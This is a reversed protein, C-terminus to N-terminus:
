QAKSIELLNLIMRAKDKASRQPDPFLELLYGSDEVEKLIQTESNGTSFYRYSYEILKKAFEARDPTKIYNLLDFILYNMISCNKFRERPDKRGVVELVKEIAEAYIPEINLTEIINEKLSYFTPEQVIVRLIEASHKEREANISAKGALIEAFILGLNYQDTQPVAASSNSMIVEPSIYKPSGLVNVGSITDGNMFALGFDTLNGTMFENGDSDTCLPLLINSPKLDRHIIGKSHAYDLTYSIDKLVDLLFLAWDYNIKKWENVDDINRLERKDKRYMKLIDTLNQGDGIKEVIFAPYYQDGSRFFIINPDIRPISIVGDTNLLNTHVIHECFIRISVPDSGPLKQVEIGLQNLSRDPPTGILGTEYISKTFIDSQLSVEDINPFIAQMESASLGGMSVKLCRPYDGEQEDSPQLDFIGAMGGSGFLSQVTFRRGDVQIAKYAVLNQVVALQPSREKMGIMMIDQGNYRNFNRVKRVITRRLWGMINNIKNTQEFSPLEGSFDM